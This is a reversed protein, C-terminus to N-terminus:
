QTACKHNVLCGVWYVWFWSEQALSQQLWNLVALQLHLLVSPSRPVVWCYFDWIGLALQALSSKWQTPHSHAYLTLVTILSLFSFAGLFKGIIIHHDQIPATQLLVATGKSREEALVKMSLLIGAIMTSGSSFYFFDELVEASYRPTDTLAFANFLLGDLLLVFSMIAYCGTNLYASLERRGILFIASM